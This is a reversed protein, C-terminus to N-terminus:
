WPRLPSSAEWRSTLGGPSSSMTMGVALIAIVAIQNAVNRLNEPLLFTPWRYSAPTLVQAGALQPLSELISRVVPASAQTTAVVCRTVGQEAARALVARAEAPEGTVVLPAKGTRERVRRALTDAFRADEEGGRGVVVVTAGELQTGELQRALSRAAAEGAPQQEQITAVSFFAALLVLVGLMGYGSLLRSLLSPGRDAIDAM